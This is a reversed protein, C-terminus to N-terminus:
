FSFSTKVMVGTTDDTNAASQEQIFFLPTITMGDNIDYSYYVEYMYQEDTDEVTNVRTGMAIGLSGPGVEDWGLGVFFNSLGDNDGVVSADEGIEYGVSLSPLGGAEPDYYANLAVFTDTNQNDIPAASGDETAGFTASVGFTDTTYAVNVGYADTGEENM